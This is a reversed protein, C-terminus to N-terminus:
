RRQCWTHRWSSLLLFKHNKQLTNCIVDVVTNLDNNSVRGMKTLDAWLLLAGSDKTTDDAFQVPPEIIWITIMYPVSPHITTSCTKCSPVCSPSPTSWVHDPVCAPSVVDKQCGGVKDAWALPENPKGHQFSMSTKMFNDVVSAGICNQSRIHLIRQTRKSRESRVEQQYLRGLSAVDKALLLTDREWAAKRADQNLQDIQAEAATFARETEKPAPLNECWVQLFSAKFGPDKISLVENIEDNFDRSLSFAPCMLYTLSDSLALSLPGKLQEKSYSRM